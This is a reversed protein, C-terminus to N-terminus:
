QASDTTTTPAKEKIAADIIASFKELTPTNTTPDVLDGLEIKKDDLFFTPTGNIKLGNGVKIDANISDNVQKSAWDSRFQQENMGLGKAYGAFYKLPDAATSWENQISYLKNHMEWYKGQKDAAEAARAAAFANQHVQQLPFNRFQFSIDAQYKQIVQEITPEYLGCVPCQFDGYEVLKVSSATNGTIHSTASANGSDPAKAQRGNAWIIGVFIVAIAAIVAWFRKDM